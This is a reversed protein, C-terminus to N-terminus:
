PRIEIPTGNPVARWIEEIERDTVAICGNTWDLLRHLNGIWDLGNKMGPDHHRRGAFRRAQRGGGPRANPYSIHLAKDFTSSANRSDFNGEPTRGDGEHQKRGVPGWGLAVRYTKLPKGDQLLALRREGKLVLIKDAQATEPLQPSPWLWVVSLLAAGLLLGVIVVRRANRM